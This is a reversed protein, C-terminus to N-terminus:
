PTRKPSSVSRGLLRVSLFVGLRVAPARLLTLMRLSLSLSLLVGLRLAIAVMRGQTHKLSAQKGMTETHPTRKEHEAVASPLITPCATSHEPETQPNAFEPTAHETRRAPNRRHANRASSVKEEEEFFKGVKHRALPKALQQLVEINKPEGEPTAPTTSKFLDALM